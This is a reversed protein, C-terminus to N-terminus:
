CGSEQFGCTLKVCLSFDLRRVLKCMRAYLEIIEAIEPVYQLM